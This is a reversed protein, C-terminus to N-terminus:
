DGLEALMMQCENDIAELQDENFDTICSVKNEIIDQLTWGTIKRVGFEHSFSWDEKKYEVDLVRGEYEIEVTM